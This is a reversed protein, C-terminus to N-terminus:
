PLSILKRGMYSTNLKKFEWWVNRNKSIIEPHKLEVRWKLSVAITHNGIPSEFM